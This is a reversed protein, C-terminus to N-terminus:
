TIIHIPVKHGHKGHAYAKETRLYKDTSHYPALSLLNEYVGIFDDPLRTLSDPPLPPRETWIEDVLNDTISALNLKAPALKTNYAAFTDTNVFLLSGISFETPHQGQNCNGM